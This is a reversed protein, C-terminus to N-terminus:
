NLRKLYKAPIPEYLIVTEPSISGDCDLFVDTDEMGIANAIARMWEARQVAPEMIIDPTYGDAKMVPTDISFKIDGYSDIAQINTSAFIADGMGWNGPGRTRNKPLLGEKEILPAWEESTAHYLMDPRSWFDQSFDINPYFEHLKYPQIAFIWRHADVPVPYDADTIVTPHDYDGDQRIVLVSQGGPFSVVECDTGSAELKTQFAELSPECGELLTEIDNNAIRYIKM